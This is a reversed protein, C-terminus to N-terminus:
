PTRSEARAIALAEVHPIGSGSAFPAHRRVLWAATGATAACVAVVLCVGPLPRAHAWAIFAERLVDAKALCLRFAACVLGSVAGVVLSLAALAPLGRGNRQDQEDFEPM